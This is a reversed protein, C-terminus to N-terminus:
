RFRKGIIPELIQTRKFVALILDAPDLYCWSRFAIVYDIPGDEDHLIVPTKVTEIQVGDHQTDM